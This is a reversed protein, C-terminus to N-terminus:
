LNSPLDQRRRLFTKGLLQCTVQLALIHEATVADPLDNPTLASVSGNPSRARAQKRTRRKGVTKSKRM